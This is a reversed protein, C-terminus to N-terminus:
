SGNSNGGIQRKPINMISEQTAKYGKIKHESDKSDGCFHRELSATKDVLEGFGYLLFSSIWSVLSGIGAILIGILFGKVITESDGLSYIFIALGAICSLAIGVWGIVSALTKIKKGINAYMKENLSM